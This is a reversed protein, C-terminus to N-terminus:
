YAKAFDSEWLTYESNKLTVPNDRIYHIARYLHQESRIMTDHYNSQWIAGHKMKRSSVGKWIQILKEIPHMPRCLLHVHNPMIVWSLHEVKTGNSHMLTEELIKRNTEERLLCKGLGQDLADEIPKTFLARYEELQATNHPEANRTLWSEKEQRWQRLLNQPLSGKERFTIFQPCNDQQWHPLSSGHVKVAKRPNFFEM